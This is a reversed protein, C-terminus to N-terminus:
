DDDEEDLLDLFRENQFDEPRPRNNRMFEIERQREPNNETNESFTCPRIGKIHGDEVELMLGVEKPSDKESRHPFKGGDLLIVPNGMRCALCQNIQVSLPEAGSKVKARVVENLYEVFGIRDTDIPEGVENFYSYEGDILFQTAEFLQYNALASAFTRVLEKQNVKPEKLCTTTM